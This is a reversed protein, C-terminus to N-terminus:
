NFWKNRNCQRCLVQGNSPAGDGGKSRPIIHDVQAENAPPKVGPQSKEAPVTDVGCNECVVKGDNAQTNAEKVQQRGKPTFAKGARPGDATGPNDSASEAPKADPAVDPAVPVGDNTTNIVESAVYAIGAVVGLIVVVDLIGGVIAGAATGVGPVVSGIAAGALACEGAGCHGTPDTHILPNNNVYSYRNLNQPNATGAWDVQGPVVTDASVFRALTPDYYRAHYYLLGTGDLRQGTYNLSTQTVTSAGRAKGWPDFDQRSVVAGASNTALSVSGLHDGHLYTVANTASDRMAVVQGNFTYYRTSAGGVIQEWLGQLYVTTVGGVTKAVREGDADYTYTEDSM